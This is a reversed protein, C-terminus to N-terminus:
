INGMNNEYVARVFFFVGFNVHPMMFIETLKLTNLVASIPNNKTPKIQLSSHPAVTPQPVASCVPINHTRNRIIDNSINMSM